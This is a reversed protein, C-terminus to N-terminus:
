SSIEKFIVAFIKPRPFAAVGSPIFAICDKCSFFELLDVRLLEIAISTSRLVAENCSMGVVTIAILFEKFESFGVLIINGTQSEVIQAASAPM